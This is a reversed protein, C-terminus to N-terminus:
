RPMTFARIAKHGSPMNATDWAGMVVLISGHKNGNNKNGASAEVPPREFQLRGGILIVTMDAAYEHFWKVDTSSPLLFVALKARSHLGKELWPRINEYPPNCWVREGEWDQSLGDDDITYYKPCKASWVEACVDVTFKGFIGECKRYFGWPTAHDQKGKKGLYKGTANKM